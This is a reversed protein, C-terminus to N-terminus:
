KRGLFGDVVVDETFRGAPELALLRERLDAEFAPRNDGFLRPAAFSTSYLFGLVTEVSWTHRVPFHREEFRHFASRALIDEWPDHAVRYTSDGARRETGLWDRLTTRVIVQWDLEGTWIGCGDGTLLVSGEPETLRDLAALTADPPMWHFSRGMVTIRLPAIQDALTEITEARGELWRVNHVGAHQAADDAEALMATDPDVGFAIAVHPAFPLTLQGTGCGLDLLHGTGDLGGEGVVWDILATPYSPRYRAYYWATGEFLRDEPTNM